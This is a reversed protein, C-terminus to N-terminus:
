RVALGATVGIVNRPLEHHRVGHQTWREARAEVFYGLTRTSEIGVAAGFMTVGDGERPDLGTAITVLAYPRVAATAAGLRTGAAGGAALVRASGEWDGSRGATVARAEGRLMLADRSYQVAVLGAAGLEDTYVPGAGVRLGLRQATLPAAAALLVGAILLTRAHARM